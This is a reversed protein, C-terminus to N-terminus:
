CNVSLHFERDSFAGTPSFTFVDVAFISALSSRVTIIGAPEFNVSSDGVTAAYECGNVPQAFSVRYQGPAFRVSATTRFQRVRVGDIRVVAWGAAQATPPMGAGTGPVAGPGDQAQAIGWTGFGVMVFAAILLTYMLRAPVPSLM